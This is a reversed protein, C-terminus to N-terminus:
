RRWRTNFQLGAANRRPVVIVGEQPDGFLTFDGRLAYIGTLAALAADVLDANTLSAIEVGERTLVSRRWQVKSTGKPMLSGALYVASAHPFVEVAHDRVPGTRYRQFRSAVAGFSQFGVKMWCYFPKRQKVPDSPTAFL